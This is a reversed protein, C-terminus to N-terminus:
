TTEVSIELAALQTTAGRPELLTNLSRLRQLPETEQFEQEENGFRWPFSVKADGDSSTGGAAWRGRNKASLIQGASSVPSLKTWRAESLDALPGFQLRLSCWRGGTEPPLVFM